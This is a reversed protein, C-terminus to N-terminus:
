ALLGVHATLDVMFWSYSNVQISERRRQAFELTTPISMDRTTSYSLVHNTRQHDGLLHPSLLFRPAEGYLSHLEFREFHTKELANPLKQARLQHTQDPNEVM